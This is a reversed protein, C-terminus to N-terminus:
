RGREKKEEEIPSNLYQFFQKQMQFQYLYAKLQEELFSLKKLMLRVEKKSLYQAYQDMVLLKARQVEGLAITADGESTETGDMSDMTISTLRKFFHQFQIQCINKQFEPYMVFIKDIEIMTKRKKLKPNMIYCKTKQEEKIITWKKDDRHIVFNTM